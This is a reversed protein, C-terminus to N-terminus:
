HIQPLKDQKQEFKFEKRTIEAWTVNLIDYFYICFKLLHNVNKM